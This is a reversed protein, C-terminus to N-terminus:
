PNIFSNSIEQGVIVELLKLNPLHNVTGSVFFPFILILKTGFGILWDHLLNSPLSGVDSVWWLEGHAVRSHVAISGCAM